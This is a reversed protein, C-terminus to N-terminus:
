PLLDTKIIKLKNVKTNKYINIQKCYKNLNIQIYYTNINIYIFIDSVKSQEAM